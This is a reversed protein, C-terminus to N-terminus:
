LVGVEVRTLGFQRLMHDDLDRVKAMTARHAIRKSWANLASRIVRAPDNNRAVPTMITHM